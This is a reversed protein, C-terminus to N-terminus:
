KLSRLVETPTWATQTLKLVKKPSVLQLLLYTPINYTVLFRLFVEFAIDLARLEEATKLEARSVLPSTQKRELSQQFTNKYM